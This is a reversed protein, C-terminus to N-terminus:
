EAHAPWPVREPEGCAQESPRWFWVDGEADLAYLGRAASVSRVFAGGGPVSAGCRWQAAECVLEGAAVVCHAEAVRVLSTAGAPFRTRPPMAMASASAAAQRATLPLTLVTSDELLIADEGVERLPSPLRLTWVVSGGHWAVLEGSPRVGVEARVVARVDPTPYYAAFFATVFPGQVVWPASARANAVGPASVTMEGSASVGLVERSPLAVAHVDGGGRVAGSVTGSVAGPVTGRTPDRVAEWTAAGASWCWLARGDEHVAEDEHVCVGDGDVPVFSSARLAHGRETRAPVSVGLCRVRGQALVCVGNLVAVLDEAGERGARGAAPAVLSSAEPPASSSSVNSVGAAGVSASQGAGGCGIMWAAGVVALCVPPWVVRGPARAGMEAVDIDVADIVIARTVTTVGVVARAGLAGM